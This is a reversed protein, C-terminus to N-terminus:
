SDSDLNSDLHKHSSDSDSDWNLPFKGARYIYAITCPMKWYHFTKINKEPRVNRYTFYGHRTLPLGTATKSELTKLNSTLHVHISDEPACNASDPGLGSTQTRTSESDAHRSDLGLVLGFSHSELGLGVLDPSSDSELGLRLRWPRSDGDRTSYIVTLYLM